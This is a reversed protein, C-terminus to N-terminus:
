LHMKYIASIFLKTILSLSKPCEACEVFGIMDMDWSLQVGRLSCNLGIIKERKIFKFGKISWIAWCANSTIINQSTNEKKEDPPFILFNTINSGQFIEGDFKYM